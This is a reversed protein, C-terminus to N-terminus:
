RTRPRLISISRWGCATSLPPPAGGSAPSLSSGSMSSGGCGALLGLCSGVALLCPAYRRLLTRLMADDKRLHSNRSVLASATRHIVRFADTRSSLVYDLTVACPQRVDYCRLTHVRASARREVLQRPHAGCARAQTGCAICSTRWRFAARESCRVADFFDSCFFSGAYAPDELNRPFLPTKNRTKPPRAESPLSAGVRLRGRFVISITNCFRYRKRPPWFDRRKAVSDFAGCAGKSL